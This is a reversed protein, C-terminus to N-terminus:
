TILLRKTRPLEGALHSLVSRAFARIEEYSFRYIPQVGVFLVQRAALGKYGRLTCFEGPKPSMKLDSNGAKRLGEAVFDDVGYRAQAYKLALVDGGINSADGHVIEIRLAAMKRTILVRRSPVRDEAEESYHHM